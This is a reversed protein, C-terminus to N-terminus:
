ENSVKVNAVYYWDCLTYMCLGTDFSGTDGYICYFRRCKGLVVSAVEGSSIGVQLYMHKALPPLSQQAISESLGPQMTGATLNAVVRQLEFGLRLMENYYIASPYDQNQVELDYPKSVRPCTVTLTHTLASLTLSYLHTHVHRVRYCDDTFSCLDVGFMPETQPPGAAEV